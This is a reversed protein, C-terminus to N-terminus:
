KELASQEVEVGDKM